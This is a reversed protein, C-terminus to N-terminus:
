ILINRMVAVTVIAVRTTARIASTDRVFDKLEADADTTSPVPPPRLM